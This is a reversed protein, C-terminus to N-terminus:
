EEDIADLLRGRLKKSLRPMKAIRNRALKKEDQREAVRAQVHLVMGACFGIFQSRLFRLAFLLGALILALLMLATLAVLTTLVIAVSRQRQIHIQPLVVQTSHAGSVDTSQLTIEHFGAVLPLDPTYSFTKDKQVSVVTTRVIQTRARLSFLAEIFSYQHETDTVIVSDANPAMGYLVLSDATSVAEPLPSTLYPELLATSGSPTPEPVHSAAPQVKQVPTPTPTTPAPASKPVVAISINSLSGTINTAKGDNALLSAREYTIPATSESKGRLVFSFLSGFSGTYGPNLIIGEFSIEQGSRSPKTTWIDVISPSYSISQISFGDPINLTGSVANVAESTNVGISVTTTAGVEVQTKSVHASFVAAHAQTAGVFLCLSLVSLIGLQIRMYKM